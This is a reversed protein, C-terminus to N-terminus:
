MLDLLKKEEKIQKQIEEPIQMTRARKMVWVHTGDVLEVRPKFVKPLAPRKRKGGMRVCCNCNKLAYKPAKAKAGYLRNTM